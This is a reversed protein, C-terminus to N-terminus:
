AGGNVNVNGNIYYIGTTSGVAGIINSPLSVVPRACYYDSNYNDNSVSGNRHVLMVRDYSRYASPSALWYGSCGDTATSTSYHPFYVKNNIGRDAKSTDMNSTNYYTDLSNAAAGVKYGIGYTADTVKDWFLESYGRQKWSAAWLEVTPGGYAEITNNESTLAFDSWNAKDMLLAAAKQKNQTANGNTVNEETTEAYWSSFYNAMRNSGSQATAPIRNTTIKNSPNNWMVNYLNAATGSKILGARGTSGSTASTIVGKPVYDAAILYTYGSTEDEYFVVWDDDVSSTDSGIGLNVDYHVYQGIRGDYGVKMTKTIPNSEEGKENINIAVVTYTEGDTLGTIEYSTGDAIPESTRWDADTSIKYKYSTGGTAKVTISTTTFSVKEIGTPTTAKGISDLIDYLQNTAENEETVKANWGTVAQNAKSFINDGNLAITVTAGALILLVIVTIVLSILTIGAKKNLMGESCPDGLVGVGVFKEKLNPKKMIYKGGIKGNAMHVTKKQFAHEVNPKSNRIKLSNLIKVRM